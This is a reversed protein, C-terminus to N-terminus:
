PKVKAIAANNKEVQNPYIGEGILWRNSEELRALLEDRQQELQKVRRRLRETENQEHRAHLDCDFQPHHPNTM